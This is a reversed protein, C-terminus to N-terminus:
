NARMAGEDGPGLCVRGTTYLNALLMTSAINLM